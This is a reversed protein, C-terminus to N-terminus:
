LLNLDHARALAQTRSQVDLKSYINNVHKKVTSVAVVLRDAITQNSHGAAILRLVELERESLLEVLTSAHPKLRSALLADALRMDRAEPREPFASLLREVYVSNPDGQAPAGAPGLAASQALLAAMPAGEDVFLRIYGEPAALALASGIDRLAQGTDGLASYALAQLACVKTHLWVLGAAEAVQRLQDLYATAEHLLAQDATARGYAILVQARAIRSHENAYLLDHSAFVMQLEGAEWSTTQAWQLGAALDGQALHLQAEVAPLLVTAWTPYGQHQQALQVAQHVVDLAGDLDGQAQKVRALVLHSCLRLYPNLGRDCLAIGETAYRLAAELNNVERLLDAMSMYWYGGSSPAAQADHEVMWAFTQRCTTLALQVAGRVRQMAVQNMIGAMAFYVNGSARGSAASEGFAREAQTIDGQKVYAMGLAGAAVCRFALNDPDLSTLAQQGWAIVQALDPRPIYASILAHTAAIEGRINQDDAALQNRQLAQEADQVRQLAAPVDLRIFLLWAHAICLRPRARVVADPLAALWTSLADQIARNALLPVSITEILRAAQVFDAAKLAHDIAEPLLEQREFWASAHRHLTAVSASTAGSTLRERLVEAFLHHYRYWHREDDLPVLFLNARELEALLLQSYAQSAHPTLSSVQVSNAEGLRVDSAALGLVADCLPGCMRDLIATQTLFTQLHPPQRALVEEALYDVVFRHSGTFARIFGALDSRDRMALAAFQLGAIWGETRAELAAVDDASLPLGMLETLFAATEDATFRLDAARLETLQGRARLRTLPLPPDARTTLVLHLQPPLHDLLFTLASHIAPADILHYDDLVLVVDTPLTSLANLLPTLVAEIPPPQPSQLLALASAGSDPQLTDLAAIVYPWFRLPDSDAADLSVWAFPV